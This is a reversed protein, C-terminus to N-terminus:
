EVTIAVVRSAMRTGHLMCFLQFRHVGKQLQWSYGNASFPISRAGDIVLCIDQAQAPFFGLITMTQYERRLAPDIMFRDGDNPSAIVLQTGAVSLLAAGARETPVADTPPIPMNTTRQWAAYEPPYVEYVRNTVIGREDRLRFQRHVSCYEKTRRHKPITWESSRNPCANTPQKGSRPCIIKRVVGAPVPFQEPQIGFPSSHLLMMVDTFIGGAGTVGSVGVMPSGNFNGAWVGVTYRTTYGVTWNDKYEKTTGTKVACPFPFRFANGFAPRRAVQDSIIDTILFSVDSEFVRHPQQMEPFTVPIGESTKAETVLISPSWEGRNALTRYANTLELLSVEANGLTLGYGYYDSTKTLSTFGIDHLKQLFAEKGVTELVRVAPVNYSCALATRISVPGHFKKDYNEPVYDGRVDPIATPIDPVIESPLHGREFALAYMLPKLASGPQRLALVGNVQGNSRENFYDASGILVRIAGSKNEIVVVAANTVNKKSLRRVYGSVIPLIQEQLAEDITTTVIAAHMPAYQRVIMDCVHPARFVSQRPQLQLPQAVARDFDAETIIGQDLMRRLVIKQRKEAAPRHSYPDLMSPANPLAALFASEALSVDHAHKHFYFRAATEVGCLNNGYSVSNLYQELIANKDMMRELRLAYWAEVIKGGISRRHPFLTRVVQQSITSGGSVFSMAHMNVVFSRAIAIPDIGLHYFFRKDEVAITALLLSPAIERLPVWQGRGQKDNLSERLLVGRYDTISLSQLTQRTIGNSPLPVFLSATFVALLAVSCVVVTYLFRNNSVCFKM